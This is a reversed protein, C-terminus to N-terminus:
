AFDLAWSLDARIRDLTNVWRDIDEDAQLQRGIIACVFYSAAQIIPSVFAEETSRGAAHDFGLGDREAVHTLANRYQVITDQQHPGFAPLLRNPLESKFTGVLRSLCAGMNDNQGDPQPSLAETLGGFRWVVASGAVEYLHRLMWAQEAHELLGTYAARLHRDDLQPAPVIPGDNDIRGIVRGVVWGHVALRLTGNDDFGADEGLTLAAMRTQASFVTSTGYARLPAMLWSALEGHHEGLPAVADIRALTGGVTHADWYGSYLAALDAISTGLLEARADVDSRHELDRLGEYLAAYAGAALDLTLAM